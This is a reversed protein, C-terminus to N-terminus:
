AVVPAALNRYYAAEAQLNANQAQMNATVKKPDFFEAKNEPNIIREYFYGGIGFVLGSTLCGLFMWPAAAFGLFMSSLGIAGLGVYSTFSALYLMYQGVKETKKADDKPIESIKEVQEVASNAAGIFTSAYNVGKLARFAEAPLPVFQNGLTVTDCSPNVLGPLTDLFLKRAKTPSPDEVFERAAARVKDLKGPLETASIFNKANTGFGSLDAAIKGNPTDKGLAMATWGTSYSLAKATDKAGKSSRFFDYVIDVVSKNQNTSSYPMEPHPLVLPPRTGAATIGTTAM